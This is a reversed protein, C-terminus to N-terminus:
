ECIECHCGMHYKMEQNVMFEAKCISCNYTKKGTHTLMHRGLGGTTVFKRDCHTCQHEQTGDHIKIHRKWEKYYRFRRGCTTCLCPRHPEHCCHTRCNWEPCPNPDAHVEKFHKNHLSGEVFTDDEFTEDCWFCKYLGDEFVSFGLRMTIISDIAKYDSSGENTSQTEISPKVEKAKVESVKLRKNDGNSNETEELKRKLAKTKCSGTQLWNEMGSM